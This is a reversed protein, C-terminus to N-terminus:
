ILQVITTKASRTLSKTTYLTDVGSHTTFLSQSGTSREISCAILSEFWTYYNVNATYPYSRKQPLVYYYPSYCRRLPRGTSGEISCAMLSDFWARMQFSTSTTTNLMTTKPMIMMDEGHLLVPGIGWGERVWSLGIRM